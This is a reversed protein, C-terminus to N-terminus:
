PRSSPIDPTIWRSSFEIANMLAKEGDSPLRSRHLLYITDTFTRETMLATVDNGRIRIEGDRADVIATRWPEM